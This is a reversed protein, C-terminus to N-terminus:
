VICKWSNDKGYGVDFLGNDGRLSSIPTVDGTASAESELEIKLSRGSAQAVLRKGTAPSFIDYLLPPFSSLCFSSPNSRMPTM